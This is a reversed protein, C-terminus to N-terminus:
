KIENGYDDRAFHADNSKLWVNCTGYGFFRHWYAAHKWGSTDWHGKMSLLMDMADLCDNVKTNKGSYPITLNHGCLEESRSSANFPMEFHDSSPVDSTDPTDNDHSHGPLGQHDRDAVFSPHVYVSPAVDVDRSPSSRSDINGPRVAAAFIISPCALLFSSIASFRM